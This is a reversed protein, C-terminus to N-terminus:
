PTEPCSKWFITVDSNKVSGPVASNHYLTQFAEAALVVPFTGVVFHIFEFLFELVSACDDNFEPYLDVFVSLQFAEPLTLVIRFFLPLDCVFIPSVTLFPISVFYCYIFHKLFGICRKSWPM